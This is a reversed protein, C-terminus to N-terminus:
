KRASILEYEEKFLVTGVAHQGPINRGFTMYADFIGRDNTLLVKKGDINHASAFFQLLLNQDTDSLGHMEALRKFREDKSYEDFEPTQELSVLKPTREIANIIQNISSLLGGKQSKTYRKIEALVQKTTYLEVDPKAFLIGIVANYEIRQELPQSYRINFRNRLQRQERSHAIWEVDTAACTDILLFDNSSCINVLNYDELATGDGRRLSM